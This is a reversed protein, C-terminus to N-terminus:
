IGESCEFERKGSKWETYDGVQAPLCFSEVHANSALNDMLIAYNSDQFILLSVGADSLESSKLM